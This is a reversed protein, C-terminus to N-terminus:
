PSIRRHWLPFSRISTGTQLVTLAILMALVTRIHPLGALREPSMAVRLVVSPFSRYQSLVSNTPAVPFTNWASPIAAGAFTRRALAHRPVPLESTHPAVGGDYFDLVGANNTFRGETRELHLIQDYRKDKALAPPM